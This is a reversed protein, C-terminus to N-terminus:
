RGGDAGGTPTFYFKAGGEIRGEAWARGGHRHVIRQVIALGVGTGEYEDSKHLRQFVGFLKDVYRMDFGTGNDEVFYVRDGSTASAFSGVRISAPDRRRTYKFANSLLNTFVQRLLAPDAECPPLEDISVEVVREPREGARLLQVVSEVIAGPHVEERTLPQRGLRSFALLDDILSGMQRTNDEVIGLLRTPEPPLHAGYEEMVIRSFGIIARLPARLDHSVSYSFAELERNASELELTRERVRRELEANMTRIAEEARRRETIDQMQSIFHVPDGAADRVLSVNLRIWVIAGDQHMYRKEMEYTSRTGALLERVFDLDADLDDPHTLAQFNTALLEARAYGVIRCLAPNVELWRGDPAVLAMGIASNFMASRFREESEALSEEARKRETVDDYVGLIGYPRGDGDLLPVKTTDIWLQKGGAERLPEIVHRRPRGTRLIESDDARYVEGAERPWPLDSDTKGVVAAPGGLGTAGAFVENCGLYVGDRDKWFISQPVSNLVSTLMAQNKGLAAFRADLLDITKEISSRLSELEGHFRRARAGAGIREGSSAAVAYQEVTQLPKIVIWWLMAFLSVILILDLILIRLELSYLGRRLNEELFRPTSFVRVSGLSADSATIQREALLLEGAALERDTAVVHWAADRIRGHVIVGGPSSVDNQRVVVAYVEPSTMASEIVKDVQARDFNWLPLALGVSLQDAVRNTRVRLERWERESDARYSFAGLAGMLLTAAVVLVTIVLVAVSSKRPIM